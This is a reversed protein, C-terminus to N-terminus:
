FPSKTLIYEEGNYPKFVIAGGNTELKRMDRKSVTFNTTLPNHNHLVVTVISGVIAGAICAAETKHASVFTKAKVINDNISM